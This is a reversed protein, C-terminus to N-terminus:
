VNISVINEFLTTVFYSKDRVLELDYAVNVDCIRIFIAVVKTVNEKFIHTYVMDLRRVDRMGQLSNCAHTIM